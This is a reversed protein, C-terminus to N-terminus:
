ARGEMKSLTYTQSLLFINFVAGTLCFLLLAAYVSDYVKYAFYIALTSCFANLLQFKMYKNQREKIYFLSNLPVAIFETLLLICLIRSFEGSVKWDAGFITGFLFPGAVFIFVFFPVGMWLLKKLTAKYLEECNGKSKIEAIAENRFVNGIAGVIVIIPLRLIRNALSYYGVILTNFLTAFIIPIFQQTLTLSLDSLLMFKPFSIYRKAAAIMGKSSFQLFYKSNDKLLYASSVLMALILSLIMGFDQFNLWGFLLSFIATAIAQIAGAISIKKYLKKRQFWYGIATYLAISFTYVPLLYASKNKFLEFGSLLSTTTALLLITIGYILSVLLGLTLILQFIDRAKEDEEPLVLALEYRGTTLVAFFVGISTFLSLIGFDEVSYIRTLIPSVGVVIVQSIITGFALTAVNRFFANSKLKNLYSIM